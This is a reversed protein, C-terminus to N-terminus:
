KKQSSKIRGDNGISIRAGCGSCRYGMNQSVTKVTRCYPCKVTYNPMFYRRMISKSKLVYFSYSIMCDKNRTM